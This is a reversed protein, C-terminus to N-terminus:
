NKDSSRQESLTKYGSKIDKSIRIYKSLEEVIHPHNYLPANGAEMYESLNISKRRSLGFYLNNWILADRAGHQRDLIVRELWGDTICTGKEYKEQASRIRSIREGLTKQSDDTPNDDLIQCYRRLEWVAADLLNLDIEEADYSLLYYRDDAGDELKAVFKTVKESLSIQFKGKSNLTNLGKTVEHSIEKSDIRNLLLICKTYKELCHLSSWRFQPILKARYALRAHVYDKDATDRFARLAFDNVLVDLSYPM